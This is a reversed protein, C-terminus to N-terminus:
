PKYELETSQLWQLWDQNEQLMLQDTERLAKELEQKTQVRNFELELEKLRLLTNQGRSANLSYGRQNRIGDFAAAIPPISLAFLTLTEELYHIHIGSDKLYCLLIHALAFLLAVAFLVIGGIELRRNLNSHKSVYNKQFKIQNTIWSNLIYNSIQPIRQVSMEQNGPENLTTCLENYTNIAWAYKLTHKEQEGRIRLKSLPIGAIFLYVSSRLKEVLFRNALWTKHFGFHNACLILILIFTLLIFEIIFAIKLDLHFIIAVLVTTVALSSLVYISFGTREFRKKSAIAREDAQAFLPLLVNELKEKQFETLFDVAPHNFNVLEPFNSAIIKQEEIENLQM